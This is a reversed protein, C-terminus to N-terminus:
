GAEGGVAALNVDTGDVRGEVELFFNERGFIIIDQRTRLRCKGNTEVCIAPISIGARLRRM